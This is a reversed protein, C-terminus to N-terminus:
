IAELISTILHPKNLTFFHLFDVGNKKLDRCQGITFDIGCKEMDALNDKFRMLSEEIKKPITARCISTFEKIKKINTLPLIGPLVPINLNSKKMKDIFQYYYTNDFFMQTVAFNAGIEIKQKMFEFDKELSESEIHGEPYVAVGLCFDNYRKIHGILSSAYSFEQSLFSFNNVGQPSDGRLAMINEIGAIKYRELVVDLDVKNVDISTLHPMVTLDGEEILFEVAERTMDQSVGAAGCTMSVYLPNYKKLTRITTILSEKGKETRPPFFEFAIGDTKEKLIDTIKM